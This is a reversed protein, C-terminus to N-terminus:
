IRKAAVPSVIGAARRPTTETVTTTERPTAGRRLRVPEWPLRSREAKISGVDFGLDAALHPDELLRTLSSRFRARERWQGLNRVIDFPGFM